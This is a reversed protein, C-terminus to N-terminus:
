NVINAPDLYVFLSLMNINSINNTKEEQFINCHEIYFYFKYILCIFYMMTSYVTQSKIINTGNM